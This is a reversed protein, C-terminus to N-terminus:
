RVSNLRLMNGVAITYTLLAFPSWTVHRSRNSVPDSSDYTDSRQKWARLSVRDADRNKTVPIGETFASVVLPHLV